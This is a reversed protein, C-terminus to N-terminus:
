HLTAKDRQELIQNLTFNQFMKRIDKEKLNNAFELFQVEKEKLFESVLIKLNENPNEMLIHIMLQFVENSPQKLEKFFHITVLKKTSLDVNEYTLLKALLLQTEDGAVKALAKIFDLRTSSDQANKFAMRFVTEAHQPEFTELINKIEKRRKTNDKQSNLFFAMDQFNRNQLKMITDISISKSSVSLTKENNVLFELAIKQFIENEKNPDEELIQIMLQSVKKIPTVDKLAYLATKKVLFESASNFLAVLILQTQFTLDGEVKGLATILSMKVLPIDLTNPLYDNQTKLLAERFIFEADQPEHTNLIDEIAKERKTYPEQTSQYELFLVVDQFDQSNKLTNMIKEKLESPLGKKEGLLQLALRKLTNSNGEFIQTLAQSFEEVSNEISDSIVFLNTAKFLLKADESKFIVVLESQTKNGNLKALAKILNMQFSSNQVKLVVDYSLNMLLLAEADEATHNTTIQDIKRKDLIKSWTRKCRKPTALASEISFISFLILAYLKM